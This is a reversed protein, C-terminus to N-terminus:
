VVADSLDIKRSLLEYGMAAGIIGANNRLTAATIECSPNLYEKYKDFKKSVGGGLIILDPSFIFEIHKVIENLRPGWEKWKMDNNERVSNAAYKEAISDKWKLHGFETNPLLVRDNFVASGIGTGLTLLIVVGDKIDKGKGFEMEAIGAADADNIFFTECGLQADYYEKLNFGLFSKDINAASHATGNKIIAPFGFGIPQGEWNFDTILQKIVPVFAEATAPKPTSYKIRETCLEGKQLDVMAGKIGTAGIDIGLIRQM